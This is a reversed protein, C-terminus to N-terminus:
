SKRAKNEAISLFLASFDAASIKNMEQITELM